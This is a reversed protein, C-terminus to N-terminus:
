GESVLNGVEKSGARAITDWLIEFLEHVRRMSETQNDEKVDDVGMSAFVDQIAQIEKVPGIVMVEVFTGFTTM